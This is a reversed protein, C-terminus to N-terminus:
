ESTALKAQPVLNVGRGRVRGMKQELYIEHHCNFKEAVTIGLFQSM